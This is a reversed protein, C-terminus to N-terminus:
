SRWARCVGARFSGSRQPGRLNCARDPVEPHAVPPVPRQLPPQFRTLGISNTLVRHSEMQAGSSVGGNAKVRCVGALHTALHLRVLLVLGDLPLPLRARADRVARSPHLRPRRLLEGLGGRRPYRAVQGWAHAKQRAELVRGAAVDLPLHTTRSREFSFPNSASPAFATIGAVRTM